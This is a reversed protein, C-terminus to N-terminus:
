EKMVKVVGVSGNEQKEVKIILNEQKEMVLM